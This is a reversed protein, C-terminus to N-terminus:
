KVELIPSASRVCTYARSERVMRSQAQLLLAVAWPNLLTAVDDERAVRQISSRPEQIPVPNCSVIESTM